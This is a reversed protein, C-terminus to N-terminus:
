VLLDLNRQCRRLHDLMVQVRDRAGAPPHM